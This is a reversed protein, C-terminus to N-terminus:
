RRPTSPASPAIRSSPQRAPRKWRTLGITRCPPMMAGSMNKKAVARMRPLSARPPAVPTASMLVPSTIAWIWCGASACSSPLSAHSREENEGDGQGEGRAVAAGVRRRGARRAVDLGGVDAQRGLDAAPQELHLDGFPIAHGGAIQDRA